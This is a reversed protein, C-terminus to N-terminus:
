IKVDMLHAFLVFPLNSIIIPCLLNPIVEIEGSTLPYNKATVQLRINEWVRYAPTPARLCPQLFAQSRPLTAGKGILSCACSQCCDITGSQIARQFAEDGEHFRRSFDPPSDSAPHRASYRHIRHLIM